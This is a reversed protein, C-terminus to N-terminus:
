RSQLVNVPESCLQTQRLSSSKLCRGVGVLVADAMMANKIAINTYLQITKNLQHDQNILVVAIPSILRKATIVATKAKYNGFM